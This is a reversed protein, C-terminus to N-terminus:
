KKNMISNCGNFYITPLANYINAANKFMKRVLMLIVTSFIKNKTYNNQM